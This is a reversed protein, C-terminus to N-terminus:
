RWKQSEVLKVSMLLFLATGSIFYVFNSLDILGKNFDDFQTNVNIYKPLGAFRIPLHQTLFYPVATFLLIIFMSVLFAIIQNRTLTSAFVGISMYLSGVLLMGLYETFLPGYDPSGWLSLLAVFLLTPVLLAAFFGVAGLWKGVVLQTDTIPSTMLTEVNGSRLEEAILRMSIAPAVGVLIWLLWTFMFRMSAPEGPMFVLNLFLLGALLTFLALVVYAIPSLFFSVFERRAIILSTM